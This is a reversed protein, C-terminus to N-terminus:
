VWVRDLGNETWVCALHGCMHNEKVTEPRHHECPLSNLFSVATEVVILCSNFHKEWYNQQVLVDSDITIM